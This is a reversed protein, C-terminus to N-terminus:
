AATTVTGDEKDTTARHKKVKRGKSEGGKSSRNRKKSTATGPGNDPEGGVSNSRNGVPSDVPQVTQQPELVHPQGHQPPRQGPQTPSILGPYMAPHGYPAGYPPFAPLFYPMIPPGGNASVSGDQPPVEAPLPIYIGYYGEPSTFPTVGSQAAPM